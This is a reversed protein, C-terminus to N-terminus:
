FSEIAVRKVVNNAVAIYLYNADYFFTGGTLTTTVSNAPTLKNKLVFTNATLTATDALTINSNSANLLASVTVKKTNAAGSPDDVIVLLDDSSPTALNPLEPISRARNTM